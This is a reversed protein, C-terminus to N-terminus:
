VTGIEIEAARRAARTPFIFDGLRHVLGADTLRAVADFAEVQNGLERAVEQVSWPWAAENLMFGVITTDIQREQACRDPLGEGRIRQDQM